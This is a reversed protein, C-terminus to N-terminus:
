MTSAVLLAPPVPMIAIIIAVYAWIRWFLVGFCWIKWRRWSDGDVVRLVLLLASAYSPVVGIYRAWVIGVLIACLGASAIVIISAM